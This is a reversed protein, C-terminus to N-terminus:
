APIEVYAVGIRKRAGQRRQRLSRVFRAAEVDTPFSIRRSQGKTGIRGWAYDVIVAGFLDESTEIAYCRAINRSPDRAELLLRQHQFAHEDEM